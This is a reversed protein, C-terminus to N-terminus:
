KLPKGAGGRKMRIEDEMQTHCPTCLSLLFKMDFRDDWFERIPRMHHVERGPTLLQPQAMQCAQCLPDQCLKAKRTWKWGASNYFKIVEADTVAM